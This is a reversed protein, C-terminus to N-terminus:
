KIMFNQLYKAFDHCIQVKLIIIFLTFCLDYNVIVYGFYGVKVEKFSTKKKNHALCMKIFSTIIGVKCIFNQITHNPM